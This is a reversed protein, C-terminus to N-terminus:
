QPEQLKTSHLDQHGHPGHHPSSARWSLTQCCLASCDAPETPCGHRSIGLAVTGLVSHPIRKLVKCAALSTKQVNIPPFLGQFLAATLSMQEGANAFNSLVVQLRATLSCPVSTRLSM